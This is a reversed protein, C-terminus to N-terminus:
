NQYRHCRRQIRCHHHHCYDCDHHYHCQRSQGHHGSSDDCGRGNGTSGSNSSNNWRWTSNRTCGTATSTLLFSFCRPRLWAHNLRQGPLTVAEWPASPYTFMQFISLSRLAIRPSSVDDGRGGAAWDPGLPGDWHPLMIFAQKKYLVGYGNKYM